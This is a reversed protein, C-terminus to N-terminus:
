AASWGRAEWYGMQFRPEAFIGRVTAEYGGSLAERSVLERMDASGGRFQQTWSFWSLYRGLRRTAVGNFPRLFDALRKHLANVMGLAREGVKPKAPRVEHPCGLRECVSDYARLDDTAVPTGPAVRGELVAHIAEATSHARGVLECIVGGRDNAACVVCALRGSVGRVHLSRGSRHRGRPMGFPGRSNNGAFSEHLMTGDVEVAVGPGSQFEDLHSAMAECIRMRMFWSTKLCVGCRAALERLSLGDAMGEAYATWTGEGLKSQAIVRLTKRGFTRGCGKCLWRQSGDGDHGKRVVRGHHCLPCGDPDTGDGALEAAVMRMLAQALARKEETTMAAVLEEVPEPLM